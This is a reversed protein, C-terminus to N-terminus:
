KLAEQRKFWPMPGGECPYLIPEYLLKEATVDEWTLLRWLTAGPKAQFAKRLADRRNPTTTVLLM